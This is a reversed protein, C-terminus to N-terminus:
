KGESEAPQGAFISAHVGDYNKSGFAVVDVCCNGEQQIASKNGLTHEVGITLVQGDAKQNCGCDGGDCCQQPNSGLENKAFSLELYDVRKAAYGNGVAVDDFQLGLPSQEDNVFIAANANENCGCGTAEAVGSAADFIESSVISDSACCQDIGAMLGGALADVAVGAQCCGQDAVSHVLQTNM